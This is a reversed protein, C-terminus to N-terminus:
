LAGSGPTNWRSFLTDFVIVQRDYVAPDNEKYELSVDVGPHAAIFPVVAGFDLGGDPHDLPLHEDTISGRRSNSLHFLRLDLAAFPALLDGFPRSLYNATCFLHPFDLCFGRIRGGGLAALDAAENGLLPYDAYVSPLNELIFRLDFHDDLFAAFTAEAEDRRGPLYRGAHLAIRDAGTRDAAEATQVLASEIWAEIEKKPRDDYASPACPNVGHAHHPAHVVIRVGADAILDLHDRLSRERGPIVQVQIHDIRGEHYRAALAAFTQDDDIRVGAGIRYPRDM